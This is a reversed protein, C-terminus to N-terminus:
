EREPIRIICINTRKIIEWLVRLCNKSMKMKEGRVESQIFEVARNEHKSIRKKEKKEKADLRSNFRKASNKLETITTSRKSCLM